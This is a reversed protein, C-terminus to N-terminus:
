KRHEKRLEREIAEAETEPEDLWPPTYRSPLGYECLLFDLADAEFSCDLALGERNDESEYIEDTVRVAVLNLWWIARRIAEHVDPPIDTWEKQKM